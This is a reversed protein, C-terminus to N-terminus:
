ALYTKKLSRMLAHFAEHTGEGIREREIYEFGEILKQHKEKSLFADAMPYLITDERRIHPLLLGSYSRANQIITSATGKKEVDYRRVAKGMERVYERGKRHESILVGILRETGAIGAEVMAPFLLDEEKGHHCKDVFVASFKLIGKLDAPNVRAGAELKRCIEKLITLMLKIGEHEDKLQATAKASKAM